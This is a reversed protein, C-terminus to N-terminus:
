GYIERLAVHYEEFLKLDSHDGGNISHLRSSPNLDHLMESAEHPVTRDKTGHILHVPCSVSTINKANSLPFRNVFFIPLIPYRHRAVHSISYYPTELVVLKPSRKSAVYSAIGSGLSTGHLCINEEGYKKAFHDYIFLGDSLLTKYALKGNSKGYHRYDYMAVDYNFSNTRGFFSGSKGLHGRNGHLYLIVGRPNDVHFKLVNLEIGPEPSLFYEEFPWQYTYRFSQPFHRPHFLIKEQLFYFYGLMLGYALVLSIVSVTWITM